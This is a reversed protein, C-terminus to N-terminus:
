VTSQESVAFAFAIVFNILASSSLDCGEPETETETKYENETETENETEENL